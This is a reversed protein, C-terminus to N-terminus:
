KVGNPYFLNKEIKKTYRFGAREADWAKDEDDFVGVLGKGSAGQDSADFVAFLYEPDIKNVEKELEDLNNKNYQNLPIEIYDEYAGHYFHQIWDSDNTALRASDNKCLLGYCVLMENSTINSVVHKKTDNILYMETKM